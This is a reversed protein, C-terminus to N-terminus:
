RGARGLACSRHSGSSCPVAQTASNAQELQDIRESLLRIQERLARVEEDSVAAGIDPAAVILGLVFLALHRKM